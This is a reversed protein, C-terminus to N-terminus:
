APYTINGSVKGAMDFTLPAEVSGKPTWKTLIGAFAWEGLSSPLVIKWNRKAPTARLDEMEDHTAQAPDYFGSASFDGEDVWGDTEYEHSPGTSDLSTSKWTGVTGDPFSIDTLQTITTYVSSIEVQLALGKSAYKGM